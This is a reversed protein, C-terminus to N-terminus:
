SQAAHFVGSYSTGLEVALSMRVRLWVICLTKRLIINRACLYLLPQTYGAVIKVCCENFRRM